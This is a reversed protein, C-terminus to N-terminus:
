WRRSSHLSWQTWSCSSCGWWRFATAPYGLLAIALLLLHNTIRFEMM